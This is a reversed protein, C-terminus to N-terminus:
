DAPNRRRVPLPVPFPPSVAVVVPPKAALKDPVYIFMQIKTPNAGWNSVQQLSAGMGLTATAVLGVINSFLM